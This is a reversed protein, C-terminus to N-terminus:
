KNFYLMYICVKTMNAPWAQHKGIRSEAGQAERVNGFDDMDM